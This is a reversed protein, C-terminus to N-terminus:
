RVVIESLDLSRSFLHRQDYLTDGLLNSRPGFEM